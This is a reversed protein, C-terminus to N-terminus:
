GEIEVTNDDPPPPPQNSPRPLQYGDPLRFGDNRHAFIPWIVPIGGESGALTGIIFGTRGNVFFGVCNSPGRGSRVILTPTAEGQIMRRVRVRAGARFDAAGPGADVEAVITGAPLPTPLASHMLAFPLEEFGCAKASDASFIGGSLIAAALCALRKM